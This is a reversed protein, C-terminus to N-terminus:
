RRSGGMVRLMSIVVNFQTNVAAQWMELGGIMAATPDLPAGGLGVRAGGGGGNQPAAQGMLQAWGELARTPNMMAGMAAVPDTRNPDSAM